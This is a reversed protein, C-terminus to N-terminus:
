KFINALFEHLAEGRLNSAVIVGNPDVLYTQPIARVGYLRAAQNSWGQLDSIQTWAVNDTKLAELWADKHREDDLSVGLVEFGKDKYQAYAKAVNPNEARCPGCWSAWFDILVYKGRFDSLSVPKGDPTNETFDPAKSGVTITEAAAIRQAFSNGTYTDRWKQDIATFIPKVVAVDFVPPTSESIAVISFFSHPNAKAFERMNDNRQALKARFQKDINKYFNTDAKQEETANQVQKNAWAAIDQPLGGAAALFRQYEKNAPSDVKSNQLSDPSTLKIVENDIYLYLINNARAADIMGKGTYDLIIRSPSPENVSGTFTFAGNNLLASDSKEAGDVFYSFYIKAPNNLTGIKGNFTFGQANAVTSITSFILLLLPIIINKKM